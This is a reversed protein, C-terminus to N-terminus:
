PTLETNTGEEWEDFAVDLKIDICNQRVTITYITNRKLPGEFAKTLTKEAGSIIATVRVEINQNEQEYVYLMGEKMDTVPKTFVITTDRRIAQDPSIISEQPFVYASQALNNLTVSKVKIEEVGNAKLDFRAMGRKLAVNATNNSSSTNELAVMGTFFQAQGNTMNIVSAKWAAEDLKKELLDNTPINGGTYAILYLNGQRSDVQINYNDSSSSGLDYIKEMSGNKFLFAKMDTIDNEGAIAQGSSEYAALQARVITTDLVGSPLNEEVDNSCSMMVLTGAALTTVKMFKFEM